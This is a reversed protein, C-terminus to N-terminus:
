GFITHALSSQVDNATLVVSSGVTRGGFTLTIHTCFVGVFVAQFM